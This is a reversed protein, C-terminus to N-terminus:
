FASTLNTELLARRKRQLSHRRVVENVFEPRRTGATDHQDLRRGAAHTAQQDLPGLVQASGHIPVTEVCAFARVARVDPASSTMM